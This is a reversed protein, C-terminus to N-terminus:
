CFHTGTEISEEKQGGQLSCACKEQRLDARHRHRYRLVADEGVSAKARAASVAPAAAGSGQIVRAKCRGAARSAAARSGKGVAAKAGAVPVPVALSNVGSGEGVSVAAVVAAVLAVVVVVVSSAITSAKGLAGNISIRNVSARAQGRDEQLLDFLDGNQVFRAFLTWSCAARPLDIKLPCNTVCAPSPGHHM